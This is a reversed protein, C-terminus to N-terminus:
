FVMDPHPVRGRIKDDDVVRCLQGNVTLSLTESPRFWVWDGIAAKEKFSWQDDDVFADPGMKVVLGVKGQYQDEDRNQDPLYLGSKTKVDPRQYVACLVQNKWVLDDPLDDGIKKRLDERPDVEHLMVVAPM